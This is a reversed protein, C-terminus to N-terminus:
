GGGHQQQQQEAASTTTTTTPPPLRPPRNPPPPPNPSRGSRCRRVASRSPSRTRSRRSVRPSAADTEGPVFEDTPYNEVPTKGRRRKPFGNEDLAVGGDRGTEYEEGRSATGFLSQLRTPIERVTTGTLLLVGFLIALLLLPVSLWVTLGDTIPGGAAYGFFGAGGSRGDLDSPSGAALHWLGLVPLAVLM